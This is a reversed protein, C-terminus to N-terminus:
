VSHCPLNYDNRRDPMSHATKHCVDLCLCVNQQLVQSTPLSFWSEYHFGRRVAFQRRTLGEVNKWNYRLGLLVSLKSASM